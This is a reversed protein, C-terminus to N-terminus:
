NDIAKIGWGDKKEVGKINKERITYSNVCIGFCKRRKGRIFRVNDFKLCMGYYDLPLVMRRLEDVEPNKDPVQWYFWILGNDKDVEVKRICDWNDTDLFDIIVLGKTEQIFDTFFVEASDIDNISDGYSDAFEQFFDLGHGIIEWSRHFKKRYWRRTRGKIHTFCYSFKM